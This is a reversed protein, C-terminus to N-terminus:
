AYIVESLELICQLLLENQAELEALRKEPSASGSEARISDEQVLIEEASCAAPQGEALRYCYAGGETCIPREFYNGQAHHFRESFGADIEIWGTLDTLFASSDVATIYGDANTKVYVTYREDM